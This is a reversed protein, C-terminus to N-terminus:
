SFCYYFFLLLITSMINMHISTTKDQRSAARPIVPGLPVPYSYAVGHDKSSPGVIPFIITCTFTYVQNGHTM